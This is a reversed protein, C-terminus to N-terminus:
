FLIQIEPKQEGVTELYGFSIQTPTFPLSQGNDNDTDIDASLTDFEFTKDFEDELDKEKNYVVVEVDVVVKIITPLIYNIGWKALNLEYDWYVKCEKIKIEEIDEIGNLIQYELHVDDTHITTVRADDLPNEIEENIQNFSKLNKM